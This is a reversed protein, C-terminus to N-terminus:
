FSGSCLSTTTISTISLAFPVTFFLDNIDKDLQYRNIMSRYEQRYSYGIGRISEQNELMDLLIGFSIYRNSMCKTTYYIRLM